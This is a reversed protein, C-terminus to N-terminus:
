RNGGFYKEPDHLSADRIFDLKLGIKQFSHAQLDYSYIKQWYFAIM